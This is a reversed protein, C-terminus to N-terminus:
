YPFRIIYFHQSHFPAHPLWFSQGVKVSNKGQWTLAKMTHSLDGYERAEYNSVDTTISTSM